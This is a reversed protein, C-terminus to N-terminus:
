AACSRAHGDLVACGSCPLDAIRTLSAAREAPIMVPAVPAEEGGLPAAPHEAQKAEQQPPEEEGQVFARMEPLTW